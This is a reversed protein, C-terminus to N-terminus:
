SCDRKPDCLSHDGVKCLRNRQVRQANARKREVVVKAPLQWEAFYCGIYWCDDDPMDQWWGSEVLEVVAKDRDASESFRILDRKPIALDLGRTCSWGLADIHTRHAADSLDRAAASWEDGLKVWVPKGGVDPSAAEPWRALRQGAPFVTRVGMWSPPCRVTRASECTAPM